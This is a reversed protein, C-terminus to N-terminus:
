VPRYHQVKQPFCARARKPNDYKGLVVDFKEQDDGSLTFSKCLRGSMAYILSSVQVEEDENSVSSGIEGIGNMRAILRLITRILCEESAVRGDLAETRVGHLTWVCFTYDLTSRLVRCSKKYAFLVVCQRWSVETVM